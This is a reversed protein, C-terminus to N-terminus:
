TPRRSGDKGVTGEKGGFQHILLSPFLTMSQIFALIHCYHSHPLTMCIPRYSCPVCAPLFRSVNEGSRTEAHHEELVLTM